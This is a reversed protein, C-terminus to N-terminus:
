LWFDEFRGEGIQITDGPAAAEVADQIVSFDGSGDKEVSWTRGIGQDCVVGLIAVAAALAVVLRM